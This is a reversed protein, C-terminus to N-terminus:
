NPLNRFCLEVNDIYVPEPNPNWIYVLIKTNSGREEPLKITTTVKEWTNLKKVSNRLDYSTRFVTETDEFSCVIRADNFSKMFAMLSIDITNITDVEQAPLILPSCYELTDTVIAAHKGKYVNSSVRNRPLECDPDNEMANFYRVLTDNYFTSVLSKEWIGCNKDPFTYVPILSDCPISDKLYIEVHLMDRGFRKCLKYNNRKLLAVNTNDPDGNMDHSRVYILKHAWTYEITRLSNSDAFAHINNERLEWGINEYNKFIELNYYYAFDRHKPWDCILVVSNDDKLKIVEPVIEKWNEYVYQYPSFNKFPFYILVIILALKFIYHLNLVSIIYSLLLMLGLSAYILYILRFIPIYHGLFYNTLIPFLYWLLLILALKIDFNKKIFKKRRDFLLLLIFSGLFILHTKWIFPNGSINIFVSILEKIGPTIIWFKGTEPINEFVIKLWPAYLILAIAQSYIYYRFGKKNEKLFLFSCLFQIVPIYFSIYHSFLLLLNTITLGIAGSIRNQKITNLYFYFSLVTLFGVLSFARLEHSARLWVNSLIFLVSVLIATSKNFHRASLKLLFFATGTSFLVSLGKLVISNIGFLKIWFHLLFFYFPPNRDYMLKDFINEIPQQAFFVSFADDGTLSESPLGMFRVILNAVIIIVFAPIWYKTLYENFKDPINKSNMREM